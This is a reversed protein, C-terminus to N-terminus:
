AVRGDNLFDRLPDQAYGLTQGVLAVLLLAFRYRIFDM